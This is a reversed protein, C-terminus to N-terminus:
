QAMICGVSLMFGRAMNIMDAGFALVMASKDPPLLKGSAIIQTRERIGYEKVLERVLPLAAFTPWGVSESLQHFSAGTGGNGGDVTIFDPVIGTEKMAQIYAEVQHEDGAVIKTGVPKGGVDRLQDVFALLEEGNSIGRFRNPSNITVW